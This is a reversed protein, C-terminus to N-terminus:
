YSSLIPLHLFNSYKSNWANTSSDFFTNTNFKFHITMFYWLHWRFFYRVIWLFIKWCLYIQSISAICAILSSHFLFSSPECANLFQCRKSCTRRGFVSVFACITRSRTNVGVVTWLIYRFSIYDIARLKRATYEWKTESTIYNRQVHVICMQQM